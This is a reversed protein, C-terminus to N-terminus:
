IIQFAATHEMILAKSHAFFIVGTKPSLIECLVKGDYPSLIKAILENERVDQGSTKLKYFIGACLANVTTFAMDDLIESIYGRHIKTTLCGIQFLFRVIAQWSLKASNKDLVDTTGAYLSYAKTNWIQWNYNLMVTDFPDPNKLYIYPLGFYKAPELVEFATKIIRVHPIFEGPFHYSALQIGYEYDKIKEFLSSAIRQTTEGLSYGPFMRNIDTNDMPWFRKGINMSFHNASPVVLIEKNQPILNKEEMESLIRVIQSCVFQQQIEDGRMAGIIAVSKEGGGFVYGDIHFEERYPSKMSFITEKRM